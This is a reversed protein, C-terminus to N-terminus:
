SRRNRNPSRAYPIRSRTPWYRPSNRHWDTRKRKSRESPTGYSTSGNSSKKSEGSEIAAKTYARLVTIQDSLDELESEGIKRVEVNSADVRRQFFRYREENTLIGYNVNKDTMYSALQEDHESTLATDVGKAELFAVPTEEIILAYDVKYVTRVSRCSM